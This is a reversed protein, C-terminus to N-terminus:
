SPETLMGCQVTMRQISLTESYQSQQPSPHTARPRITLVDSERSETAPKFGLWAM